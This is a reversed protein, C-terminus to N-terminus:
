AVTWIHDRQFFHGAQNRFERLQMGDRPPILDLRSRVPDTPLESAPKAEYSKIKPPLIEIKAGMFRGASGVRVKRLKTFFQQTHDLRHQLM